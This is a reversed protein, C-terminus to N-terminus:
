EDVCHGATIVWNRNLLAAGCTITYIGPSKKREYSKQNLDSFIEIFLKLSNSIRADYLPMTTADPRLHLILQDGDGAGM